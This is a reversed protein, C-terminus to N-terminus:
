LNYDFKSVIAWFLRDVAHEIIVNVINYARWQVTYSYLRQFHHGKHNKFVAEVNQYFWKAPM